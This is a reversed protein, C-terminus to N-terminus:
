GEWKNVVKPIYDMEWRTLHPHAPLGVVKPVINESVVCRSRVAHQRLPYQHYIPYSYRRRYEINNESLYKCFSDANDVVVPNTFFSHKCYSPIDVPTVLSNNISRRIYMAKSFRLDLLHDIKKMQEVGIAGRIEDMRMNYGLFMHDRYSTMGHNRLWRVKDAIDKDNTTVMGGEATTIAKTAYFSFFGADGLSGVKEGNYETGIAQCCDEIIHHSGPIAEMDVCGGFIHVPIIAETKSTIKNVVDEPDMCFTTDIDAFVPTAGTHMVATATSIFTYAPVIVEDGPGIGFAKLILFEACTGNTVAVAYDTGIFEAFREELEEVKEGCVLNGSEVVEHIARLEENGIGVKSSKIIDRM